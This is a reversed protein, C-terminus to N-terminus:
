SLSPNLMCQVAWVRDLAALFDQEASRLAKGWGGGRRTLFLVYQAELLQRRANELM